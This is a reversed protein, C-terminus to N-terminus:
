NPSIKKRITDVTSKLEANTMIGKDIKKIASHITSHDERHFAHAIDILPLSTLDRCLFMAIHRPLTLEKNRKSSLMNDVSISFHESVIHIVLDADIIKKAEPTIIYKLSEMATELNIAKNELKAKLIITNLANELERINGKVNNAIYQLIANDVHFGDMDEKQQLIAMRTEFPPPQIDVTAGWVFRSSLREELTVLEKPHKDASIIIQKKAQHLENFTHFFEEQTSEKGIIFQIDDILLVDINRYKARFNRIEGQNRNKISSILENTFTESTVYLVNADPNAELISHAISHMLHTKGLGSGGHIFLPNYITVGPDKSVALATAHAFDNSPGVVFTNFTYKPNLNGKVIKERDVNQKTENIINVLKYEEKEKRKEVIIDECNYGEIYGDVSICLQNIYKKHIQSNIMNIYNPDTNATAHIIYQRPGRKEIYLPELPKLFSTYSVDSLEFEEACYKIINSWKEKILNIM